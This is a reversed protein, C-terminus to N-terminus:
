KKELLLKGEKEVKGAIAEAVGALLGPLMAEIRVHSPFVDIHGTINQGLGKATFALRDETKWDREFSMLFGGGLATKLRDFGEDIRKKAEAKGVDHNLTITVLRSM